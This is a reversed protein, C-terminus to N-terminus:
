RGRLRAIRAEERAREQARERLLERTLSGEGRLMGYTGRIFEPTVPQFLIENGRDVFCVRTGRRIGYKRRLRVPVVIQGKGTVRSSDM